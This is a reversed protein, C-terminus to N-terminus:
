NNCRKNPILLSVKLMCSLCVKTKKTGPTEGDDADAASKDDNDDDDDTTSECEATYSRKSSSQFISIGITETITSNVLTTSDHLIM